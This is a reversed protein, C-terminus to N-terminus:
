KIITRVVRFGNVASKNEPIGNKRTSVLCYLNTSSWNGGRLVKFKSKTPMGVPNSYDRSEYMGFWDYCWESVNGSMDFIGLENPRKSAVQHTKSKNEMVINWDWEMENLNMISDGSNQWFWGFEYIDNGGSYITGKQLQGGRAAYEWEAETPLRYGEVKEISDTLMGNEDYAPKLYYKASLWNCYNVCDYWNVNIVPRNVIGWGNDNPLDWGMEYCFQEYEKFTVEKEGILYDYTLHVNHVPTCYRIGYGHEDGMLFTGVKVLKFGPELQDSDFILSYVKEVVKKDSHVNIHSLGSFGFLRDDPINKYQLQQSTIPVVVDNNQNEITEGGYKLLAALVGDLNAGPDYTYICYLKDLYKDNDNLTKTINGNDPNFVNEDSIDWLNNQLTKLFTYDSYGLSLFSPFPTTLGLAISYGFIESQQFDLLLPLINPNQKIEKILSETDQEAFYDYVIKLDKLTLEEFSSYGYNFYFYTTADMLNAFPSGEHPTNLTIVKDIYDGIYNTGGLSIKNMCARSVLGGMSHGVLYIENYKSLLGSKQLTIALSAGVQDWHRFIGDYAFAYCDADDALWRLCTSWTGDIRKQLKKEVNGGLENEDFPQWGHVFVIAKQKNKEIVEDIRRYTLVPLDNKKIMEGNEKSPTPKPEPMYGEVNIRYLGEYSLDEVPYEKIVKITFNSGNLIEIIQESIYKGPSLIIEIPTKLINWFEDIHSFDYIEFPNYFIYNQGKINLVPAFHIKDELDLFDPLINKYEIEFDVAIINKDSNFKVFKVLGKEFDPGEIFTFIEEQVKSNALLGSHKGYDKREPMYVTRNFVEELVKNHSLTSLVSNDGHSFVFNIPTGNSYIDDNKEITVITSLTKDNNKSLLLMAKVQDNEFGVREEWVKLFSDSNLVRLYGGSHGRLEDTELDFLFKYDAMLDLISPIENRVFARLNRMPIIIENKGKKFLVTYTQNEKDIKVSYELEFEDVFINHHSYNRLYQTIAIQEILSNPHFLPVKNEFFDENKYNLEGGEYLFYMESSGLNPTGLMIFRNIDYNYDASQIYARAILGGMSHAILNVKEVGYTDKLKNIVPILINKVTDKWGIRWDYPMTEVIYGRSELKRELEFFGIEGIDSIKSVFSEWGEAMPDMIKLPNDPDSGFMPKHAPMEVPMLPYYGNNEMETSGMIGPILLFVQKEEMEIGYESSFLNVCILGLVILSLIKKIHM